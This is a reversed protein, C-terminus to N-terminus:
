IELAKNEAVSLPPARPARETNERDRERDRGREREIEGEREREREREREKIEEKLEALVKNESKIAKKRKLNKRKLEKIEEKLTKIEDAQEQEALWGMRKKTASARGKKEAILEAVLEEKSLAMYDAVKEEWTLRDMKRGDGGGRPPGSPLARGGSSTVPASNGQHAPM